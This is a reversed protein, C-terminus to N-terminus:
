NVLNAFPRSGHQKVFEQILQGEVTRPEESPLPKWCVVLDRSSTIQWILRGGWHGVNKGQGFSFYQKLRSRLTAKSSASGAKGIYVVLTNTIWNKKLVDMTVNPSKGKFYGGSGVLLYTPLKKNIHLVFYVGKCSPLCSSDLFLESMTKFGVFGNNKIDDIDNFDM